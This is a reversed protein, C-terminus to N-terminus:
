LRGAHVLATLGAAGHGEAVSRAAQEVVAGLGGDGLGCGARLEVIRALLELHETLSAPGRPYRQERVERATDASSAVVHGLQTAATEAFAAVDIGIDRAVTLARLLGLQADYWVGYLALSWVAAAEPAEGVFRASGLTELTPRHRGFAAASGSSLLYAADSGIAEPSAQLGVDLYEGGGSRVRRALRRADEPGGTCMAALTRDRLDDVGDLCAHIADHDTLPALVLDSSRVADGVTAAAVAGAAVLPPLRHSSRNWVIVHRGAALLTRAVASGIAGAGIVSVTDTAM